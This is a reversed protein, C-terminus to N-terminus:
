WKLDTFWRYIPWRYWSAFRQPYIQLRQISLRLCWAFLWLTSCAWRAWRPLLNPYSQPGVWVPPVSQFIPISKELKGSKKKSFQSSPRQKPLLLSWSAPKPSDGVLQELFVTGTTRRLSYFTTFTRPNHRINYVVCHKCILAVLRM